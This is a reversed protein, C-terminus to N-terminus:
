RNFVLSEGCLEDTVRNDTYALKGNIFTKEVRYHYTRGEVPSWGCKSLISEPQVTWGADPRLVVLDAKYGPRIYGRKSIRYLEAPAHCMKQILQEIKIIGEHVLELGNILSFQIMPMGSTAKIAGGEKETLLHPAHDTGIVDIKNSNLANRLAERDASSKIAPNCKIRSGLTQYDQECFILHPICAEATIKKNRIPEDAFLSLEDATSVHLIHLQAGTQRALDVALASSALCAERSRILPHYCIDLDEGPVSQYKKINNQIINQDECHVAILMDAESFIKLLSDTRNVLMNGTSAGMFVKIGCVKTRDLEHLINTNQATAGFYFSYNVASKSAAASFKNELAELTTTQPICNPMDMFSTVGGAAAARSESALDAKWTLGPDRFHVHDDIVGPILLCGSLDMVHNCDVSPIQDQSLVEHILDDALVVSGIFKKGENVITVNKIWTYKM